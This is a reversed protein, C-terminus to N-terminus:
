PIAIRYVTGDRGCCLTTGNVRIPGVSAPVGTELVDSSKGTKLDVSWFKGDSSNFYVNDGDLFPKGIPKPASCFFKEGGSDFFHLTSDATAFVFEEGLAYPGWVCPGSLNASVGPKLDDLKITLFVNRDDIMAALRGALVIPSRLPRDLTTRDKEILKTEGADVLVVRHLAVQNKEDPRNNVILFEKTGEIVVPQTWRPQRELAITSVFPLAVPTGTKTEFLAVQGDNLPVLLKGDLAVPPTMPRSPLLFTRFRTADTATPDYIMIPRNNDALSPVWADFGDKMPLIKELPVDFTGPPLLTTPQGLFLDSKEKGVALDLLYAKGGATYVTVSDGKGDKGAQSSQIGPEFVILEAIGTEWLTSVSDTAVAEVGVGGLLPWRFAHFLTKAIRRLPQLTVINRKVSEKPLLRSQALQAEFRMLQWDAVWVNKGVQAIFRVVGHQAAEGGASGEAIKNLKGDVQEFLFTEGSDATLAVFSGDIEPATDVLGPIPIKQVFEVKKETNLVNLSCRRLDKQFVFLVQSGFRVPVTRITSRRHETFVSRHKPDVLSLVYLTERDALQYVLNNEVDILPATATPQPLRFGRVGVSKGLSLVLLRGSETALAVMAREDDAVINSLRFLEGVSYTWLTEGTKEDLLVLTWNRSDLLLLSPRLSQKTLPVSHFLPSSGWDAATPLDIAKRWLPTGDSARLGFVAGEAFVAIARDGTSPADQRHNRFFLSVWPVALASEKESPPKVSGLEDKSLPEVARYSNESVSRLLAQFESEADIEPYDKRLIDLKAFCDDLTTKNWSTEKLLPELIKKTEAFQDMMVLGRRIRDIRARVELLQDAPQLSRPLFKDILTLTEEARDAHLQSSKETAEAALAVAIKPLLVALEARSEEFFNPENEIAKLETGATELAKSWDTKADVILRIRALARRIKATSVKSHNPFATVFDTYDVIAQSYSGNEYALDAVDFMSDASRQFLSGYLFFGILFLAFLGSGGFLVLKSDWPNEAVKKTSFRKPFKLPNLQPFEETKHTVPLGIAGGVFSTRPSPQEEVTEVDRLDLIPALPKTPSPLAAATAIPEGPPQQKQVSRLQRLLLDALTPTLLKHEVLQEAFVEAPIPQPSQAIRERLGGVIESSVLNKQALLDVLNEAFM